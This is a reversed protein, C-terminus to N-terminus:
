LGHFCDRVYNGDGDSQKRCKIDKTCGKCGQLTTPGCTKSVTACCSQNCYGGSQTWATAASLFISAAAMLAAITSALASLVQVILRM